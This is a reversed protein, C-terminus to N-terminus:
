KFKIDLWKAVWFDNFPLTKYEGESETMGGSGQHQFLIVTKGFEDM